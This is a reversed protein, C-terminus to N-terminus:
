SETHGDCPMAIARLHPAVLACNSLVTLKSTENVKESCIKRRLEFAHIFCQDKIIVNITLHANVRRSSFFEHCHPRWRPSDRSTFRLSVQLSSPLHYKWLQICWWIDVQVFIYSTFLVVIIQRPNSESVQYPCHYKTEFVNITADIPYLM